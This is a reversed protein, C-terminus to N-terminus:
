KTKKTCSGTMSYFLLSNQHPPWYDSFIAVHSISMRQYHLEWTPDIDVVRQLIWRFCFTFNCCRVGRARAVCESVRRVVLVANRWSFYKTILCVHRYIFTFYLLSRGLEIEVWCNNMIENRISTVLCFADWDSAFAPCESPNFLIM